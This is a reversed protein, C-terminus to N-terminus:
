VFKALSTATVLATDTVDRSAWIMSLTSGNQQEIGRFKFMPDAINFLHEWDETDREKANQIAKM